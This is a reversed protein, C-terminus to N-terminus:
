SSQRHYYNLLNNNDDFKVLPTVLAKGVAGGTVHVERQERDYM